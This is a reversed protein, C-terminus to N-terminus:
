RRRTNKTTKISAVPTSIAPTAPVSAPGDNTEPLFAGEHYWNNPDWILWGSLGLDNVADIQARVEADGYPRMNPMNFDQLWPRLKLGQGGLQDM